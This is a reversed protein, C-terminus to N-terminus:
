NVAYEQVVTGQHYVVKWGDVAHRWLSMRRTVREGDQVLTYAVLFLGGGLDACHFGRVEWRDNHASSFRQVLSEIVFQRSYRRGSAGVEWFNPDTMREFDSRTTGFEPRHFIPERARLEAAVSALHAATTLTPEM